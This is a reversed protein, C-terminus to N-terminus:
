RVSWRQEWNPFSGDDALAEGLCFVGYCVTASTHSSCSVLTESCPGGEPQAWAQEKAQINVQQLPHSCDDSCQLVM